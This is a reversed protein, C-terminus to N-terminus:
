PRWIGREFYVQTVVYMLGGALTWLLAGIAVTGRMARSAEYVVLCALAFPIFGIYGPLPMQFLHPASTLIVYRWHTHSPWNLCEWFFGALLGAASLRWVWRGTERSAKVRVFPLLLLAPSIWMAQNWYWPGSQIWPLAITIAGAAVFAWRWRRAADLIERAISVEGAVLWWAEIEIPVVTAFSVFGLVTQGAISHYGGLYVWEPRPLNLLEFFLWLLASVPATVAFFAGANRRWLSLGSRRFNWGDVEILLGWWLLPYAADRLAAIWGAVGAIGMTFLLLGAATLM